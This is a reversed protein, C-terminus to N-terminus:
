TPPNTPLTSPDLRPQIRPTGSPAHTPEVEGLVVEGCKFIVLALM